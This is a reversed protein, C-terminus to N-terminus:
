GTILSAFGRKGHLTVYDCPTSILIHVDEPIGTRGVVGVQVEASAKQRGDHHLTTGAKRM